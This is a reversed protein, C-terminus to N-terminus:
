LATATRQRHAKDVARPLTLTELRLCERQFANALLSVFKTRVLGKVNTLM